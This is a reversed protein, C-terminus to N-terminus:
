GSIQKGMERTGQKKKVPGMMGRKPRSTPEALPEQQVKEQAQGQGMQEGVQQVYAQAGERRQARLKMIEQELEELRRKTSAEEQVIDKPTIEQVKGDGTMVQQMVSMEGPKERGTVQSGASKLIEVPERAVQRAVQKAIDATTKGTQRFINSM